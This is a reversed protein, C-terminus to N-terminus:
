RVGALQTGDIAGRHWGRESLCAELSESGLPVLGRLGAQSLARCSAVDRSLDPPSEIRSSHWDRSSEWSTTSWATLVIALIFALARLM